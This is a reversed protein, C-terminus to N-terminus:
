SSTADGRAPAPLPLVVNTTKLSPVARMGPPLDLDDPPQRTIRPL